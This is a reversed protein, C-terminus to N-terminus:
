DTNIVVTKLKSHSGSTISIRSKAIGLYEAVLKIVAINAKGETPTERTKVLLTDLNEGIATVSDDRQKTKVLLHFTKM